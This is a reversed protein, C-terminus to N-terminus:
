SALVNLIRAWSRAGKHFSSFEYKENPSHMRDDELGFGILLSDMGLSRKFDGVVPISGGCGILVPEKGWEDRLAQRTLTLAPSTFPLELAPSSALPKFEAHCDAPLREKVFARLSKAIQVPDQAGVLRFSVKASAEAPLVTKSGKGTYGGFIGNVDCSPRSWVMELIGRGEEGAPVSLGVEKLFESGRPALGRWQQAIQEPLESVGDYFGPLTIRGKSDHLGAIIKALLHIPNVAAGGFIGSHLDRNAAKIAVEEIALGRLMITIAPTQKDWMGTDCVLALDARLEAANDALFAPLSPSGTEEEGEFFFTIHCPVGGTETFGRVAEVFTMLQGKDDAAGRAIIQKGGKAEAIRPEFPPTEWLDLPDPPQVDYHGYFLLHPADPRKAKINALVMPHGATARVSAGCGISALEAALWEAAKACEDKYAPDTSISRFRLFDFLRGLAAELNGDIKALVPDLATM